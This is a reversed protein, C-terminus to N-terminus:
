WLLPPRDHWTEAREPTPEPRDTGADRVAIFEDLDSIEDRMLENHAALFEPLGEYVEMEGPQLDAPRPYVIVTDFYMLTGIAM